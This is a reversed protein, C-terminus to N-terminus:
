TGNEDTEDMSGYNLYQANIGLTHRDGIAKVFAASAVLSGKMYSMYNLNITKDSVSALMAPNNFALTADHDILSINIGGLAAAHASAPLKLFNFSSSKEQALSTVVQLMAAFFLALKRM